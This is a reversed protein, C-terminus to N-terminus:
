SLHTAPKTQAAQAREYPSPPRTLTWLTSGMGFLPILLFLGGFLRLTRAGSAFLTGRSLAMQDLHLHLSAELWGGFVMLLLGAIIWTAHRRPKPHYLRDTNFFQFAAGQFWLVVCGVLLIHSHNSYWLPSPSNGLTRLVAFIMGEVAFIALCLAGAKWYSHAPTSLTNWYHLLPWFLVLLIALLAGFALTWLLAGGLHASLVSHALPLLFLGGWLYAKLPTESLHSASVEQNPTPLLLGTLPLLLGLGLLTHTFTPLQRLFFTPAIMYLFLLVALSAHGAIYLAYAREEQHSLGEATPRNVIAAIMYLVSAAWLLGYHVPMWVWTPWTSHQGFFASVVGWLLATQWVRNAGEWLPLWRLPQRRLQRLRLLWFGFLMPFAWGFILLGGHFLQVRGSPFFGCAQFLTPFRRILSMLAGSILGVALWLLSLRLLTRTLPRQSPEFENPFM